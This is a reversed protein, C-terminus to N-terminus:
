KNHMWECSDLVLFFSLLIYLYSVFSGDEPLGEFVLAGVTEM